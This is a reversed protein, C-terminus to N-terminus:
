FYIKGALQIARGPQPDGAQGGFSSPQIVNLTEGFTADNYNGDPEAFNAHNFVNYSELRIQIYQSESKLQFNKYLELNTYNFGPGRFFNRPTNGFTGLPEPSFNSTNFWLHGPSTRPNTYLSVNTNSLQPTDPCGYYTFEDCWLSNYSGGANITVPFGTQLTTIGTVHWGGLAENVLRESRM